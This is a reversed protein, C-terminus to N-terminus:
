QVPEEEEDDGDDRKAISMDPKAQVTEPMPDLVEPGAPKAEQGGGGLETGDFRPMDPDPRPRDQSATSNAHLDHYMAVELRLLNMGRHMMAAGAAIETVGLFKMTKMQHQMMQEPLVSVKEMMQRPISSMTFELDIVDKARVSTYDPAGLAGTLLLSSLFLSYQM